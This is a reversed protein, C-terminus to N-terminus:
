TLVCKKSPRGLKQYPVDIGANRKATNRRTRRRRTLTDARKDDEMDKIRSQFNWEDTTSRDPNWSWDPLGELWERRQVSTAPDRLHTGRRLNTLARGLKYGSPSVSTQRVHSTQWEDVYMTLERKLAYWMSQYVDMTWGPLSMLWELRLCNENDDENKLYQSRSRVNSVADGLKYGSQTVFGKPVAANGHEEVFRCLERKFLGWNLEHANWVWNPISELQEVMQKQRPHASWYCGQRVDDVRCGLPYRSSTVFSQPVNCTGTSSEYVKLHRVFEGFKIASVAYRSVHSPNWYKGGRTLNLTQKCKELPDQLPGGDAAILEMELKDAWPQVISRPGSMSAVISDQFAGTGFRSLCAILGVSKTERAAQSNEAQWRQKAVSEATKCRSRVSQGFYPIQHLPHSPDLGVLRRAYVVGIVHVDCDQSGGNADTGARQKESM